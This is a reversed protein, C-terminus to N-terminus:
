AIQVDLVDVEAVCQRRRQEAFDVYLFQAYVQRALVYAVERCAFAEVRALRVILSGVASEVRGDSCEGNACGNCELCM